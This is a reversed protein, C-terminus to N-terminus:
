KSEKLAERILGKFGCRRCFRVGPHFLSERSCRPCSIRHCSHCVFRETKVCSDCVTFAGCVQCVAGTGTEGFHGCDNLGKDVETTKHVTGEEDVSDVSIIKKIEGTESVRRGIKEVTTRIEDAENKSM